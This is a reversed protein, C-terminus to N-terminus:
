FDVAKLVFGIMDQARGHSFKKALFRVSPLENFILFNKFEEFSDCITTFIHGVDDLPNHEFVILEEHDVSNKIESCLISRKISFWNQSNTKIIPTARAKSKM